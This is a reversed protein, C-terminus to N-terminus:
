ANHNEEAQKKRAEALSLIGALKAARETETLRINADVEVKQKDTILGHLKALGTVAAIASSYQKADRAALRDEIYMATLNGITVNHREQHGKRLQELTLLINTNKLLKCANVKVTEASQKEANYNLRYAESANGTEIYSYCFGEQKPTLKITM